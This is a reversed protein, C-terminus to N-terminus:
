IFIGFAAAEEETLEHDLGAPVMTIACCLHANYLTLEGRKWMEYEEETPEEYKDNVTADTDIRGDIYNYYEKNTTFVSMETNIADLLEEITYYANGTISMSFRNVFDLEGREYDDVVIEVDADEVKLMYDM